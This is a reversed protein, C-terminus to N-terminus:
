QKQKQLLAEPIPNAASEDQWLIDKIWWRGKDYVLNIFNVGRQEVPGQQKLRFQYASAISAVNGFREVKRGIEEEFFGNQEFFPGNNRIYDETSFANFASQGNPLHHAAAMSAGPYFLSRFREWNRKGAPGSIVDYLAKMMADIDSVDAWKAQPTVSREPTSLWANRVLVQEPTPDEMLELAHKKTTPIPAVPSSLRVTDATGASNKRV